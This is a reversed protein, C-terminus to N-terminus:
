QFLINNNNNNDDNNNNNKNNDKMYAVRLYPSIPLFYPLQTKVPFVFFHSKKEKISFLRFSLGTKHFSLSIAINPRDRLEYNVDSLANVATQKLRTLFPLTYSCSSLFREWACTHVSISAAGKKLHELSLM